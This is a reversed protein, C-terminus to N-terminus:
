AAWRSPRPTSEVEMSGLAGMTKMNSYTGSAYKKAWFRSPILIGRRATWSLEACVGRQPPPRARSPRSLAVRNPLPRFPTEIWAGAFPAVRRGQVTAEIARNRDVRGRLARGVVVVHACGLVLKSGRARSPRSAILARWILRFLDCM